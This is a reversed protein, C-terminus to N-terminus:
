PRRSRKHSRDHSCCSLCNDTSHELHPTAVTYFLLTSTCALTPSAPFPVLILQFADRSAVAIQKRALRARPKLALLPYICSVVVAELSPVCSTPTQAPFSPSLTGRHLRIRLRQSRQYVCVLRRSGTAGGSVSTVVALTSLIGVLSARRQQPVACPCHSHSLVLIISADARQTRSPM